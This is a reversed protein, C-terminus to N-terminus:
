KEPPWKQKAAAKRLLDITSEEDRIKIRYTESRVTGTWSSSDEPKYECEVEYEGPENERYPEWYAAISERTIPKLNPKGMKEMMSKQKLKLKPYEQDVFAKIKAKREKESITITLNLSLSDASFRKGNLTRSSSYGGGTSSLLIPVNKKRDELSRVRITLTGVPALNAQSRQNKTLSKSITLRDGSRREIGGEWFLSVNLVIMEMKGFELVEGPAPPGMGKNPPCTIFTGRPIPKAQAVGSSVIQIGVLSLTLILKALNRM